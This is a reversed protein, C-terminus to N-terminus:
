TMIRGTIDRSYSKSTKASKGQCQDQKQPEPYPADDCLIIVLKNYKYIIIIWIKGRISKSDMRM